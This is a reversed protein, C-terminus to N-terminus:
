FTWGAMISLSRNKLSEGDGSEQDIDSLGWSYRGDFVLRGRQYALGFVIAGDARAVDDSIDQELTDGGFSSRVKARLRVGFSPGAFASVQRGPGGFLRYSALIPVELYEIRETLKGGGDDNAAGKQSFLAEPQLALRGAFPWTLFGGAVLGPLTDFPSGGGDDEVAITSLNVGAKVGYGLGQATASSAIAVVAWMTLLVARM